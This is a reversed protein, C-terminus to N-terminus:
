YNSNIAGTIKNNVFQETALNLTYDDEHNVANFYTLAVSNRRIVIGYYAMKEDKNPYWM